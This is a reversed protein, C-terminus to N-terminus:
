RAPRVLLGTLVSIALTMALFVASSGKRRLRVRQLRYESQCDLSVGGNNMLTILCLKVVEACVAIPCFM